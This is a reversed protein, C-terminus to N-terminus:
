PAAPSCVEDLTKLLKEPDVPKELYADPHHKKFRDLFASFDHTLEAQIGTVLVVPVSKTKEDKRLAILTSLGGREPMMVDLLVVDPVEERALALGEDASNATRAEWGQDQLLTSLYTTQDPEDDIVLVRLQAM